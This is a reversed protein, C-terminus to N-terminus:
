LWNEKNVINEITRHCVGYKKALVRAGNNRDYAKYHNRIYIVDEQTLKSMPNNEGYLPIHLGNKSAHIQNEQNTCWELNTWM